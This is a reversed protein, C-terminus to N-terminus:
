LFVSFSIDKYNNKKSLSEVRLLCPSNEDLPAPQINIETQGTMLLTLKEQTLESPNYQGVINGDRLVTVGEAIEFIENLKHSVFLVAVGQSKIKQIVTFLANVEKQTLSATPEDLILLKLNGTLSRAIEVLQQQAISLDGVIANLDMTIGMQNLSEIAIDKIAKWDVVPNKRNVYHRFAINEAVTLNPFLSIDQYIVQIGALLASECTHREQQQNGIFIEGGTEPKEVGSLIKILTSKGSGNEGVLCHIDGAFLEFDVNQLAQVGPYRKSINKLSVTCVSM